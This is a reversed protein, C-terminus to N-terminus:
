VVAELVVRARADRAILGALGHEEDLRREVQGQGVAVAVETGHGQRCDLLQLGICTQLLGTREALGLPLRNRRRELSPSRWPTIGHPRWSEPRARWARRCCPRAGARRARWTRVPRHDPWQNAWSPGASRGTGQRERPQM